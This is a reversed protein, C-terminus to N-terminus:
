TERIYNHVTGHREQRGVIQVICQNGIKGPTSCTLREELKCAREPQGEECDTPQPQSVTSKTSSFHTSNMRHCSVFAVDYRPRDQAFGQVDRFRKCGLGKEGRSGPMAKKDEGASAPSAGLLKSLKRSLVRRQPLRPVALGRM